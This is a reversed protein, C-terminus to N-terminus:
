HRTPESIHILSLYLGPVFYRPGEFPSLLCSGFAPYTKKTQWRFGGLCVAAECFVIVLLLLGMWIRRRM